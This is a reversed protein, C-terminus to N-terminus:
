IKKFQELNNKISLKIEILKCMRNNKLYEKINKFFSFNNQKDFCGTFSNFPPYSYEIRKVM